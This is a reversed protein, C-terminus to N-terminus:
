PKESSVDFFKTSSELAVDHIKVKHKDELNTLTKM